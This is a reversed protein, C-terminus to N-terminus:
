ANKKWPLDVSSFPQWPSGFAKKSLLWFGADELAEEFSYPSPGGELFRRADLLMTAIAYEDWNTDLFLEASWTKRLDRLTQNDLCRYEEPIEWALTKRRPLGTRDAYYMLTDNWEGREGRVSLHRSRIFTRYQVPCFDYIATKGSEYSIFLRDRTRLSMRGDLIAGERSDTEMVMRSVSEGRLTYEEGETLLMRRLLSAAHYDHVLSLYASGPVGILGERVAEFGQRLLPHRHYQELSFIRAGQERLRALRMLQEEDEGLPTEAAVPFGELAWEETVSAMHGRDVAVIVLDPGFALAQQKEVCAEAGTREKMKRAKEESRCLYCARFLAPYRGAIRGFYEARYGSGVILLALPEM